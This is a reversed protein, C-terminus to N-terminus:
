LTRQRKKRFAFLSKKSVPSDSIIKVSLNKMLFGNKKSFIELDVKEGPLKGLDNYTFALGGRSVNIIKCRLNLLGRIQMFLGKQTKFRKYNRQTNNKNRNVM